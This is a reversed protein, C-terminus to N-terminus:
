ISLIFECYEKGTAQVVNQLVANGAEIAQNRAVSKEAILMDRYIPEIIQLKAQDPKRRVSFFSIIEKSNSKFSPTVTAFVWYFSGNKSLNKFYGMFEEGRNITEWLLAFMARPMDPHRIINHSQGLLERETYGSYEMFIPNCYTLHGVADTKSVIFADDRMVIEHDTPTIKLHM